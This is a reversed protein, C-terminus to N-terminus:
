GQFSQIQRNAWNNDAVAIIFHLENDRRIYTRADNKEASITFILVPYSNKRL